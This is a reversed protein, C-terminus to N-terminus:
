GQASELIQLVKGSQNALGNLSIITEMEATTFKLENLGVTRLEGVPALEAAFAGPINRRVQILHLNGPLSRLMQNATAFNVANSTRRNDVIFIFDKNHTALENSFKVILDMPDFNLDTQFWPAFGPIVNRVSQIVHANFKEATDEDVMTYWFTRGENRQAIETALSTKGYGVPGVILTTGPARTEISDIVRQRSIFNAPQRPPLTRSLTVGELITLGAGDGASERKAM